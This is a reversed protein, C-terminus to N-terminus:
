EINEISFHDRFYPKIGAFHRSRRAILTVVIERGGVIMKSQDYYGHIM